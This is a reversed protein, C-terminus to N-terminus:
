RLPWWEVDSSEDLDAAAPGREAKSSDHGQPGQRLAHGQAPKAPTRQKRLMHVSPRTQPEIHSCACAHTTAPVACSLLHPRPARTIWDHAKPVPKHAVAPPVLRPLLLEPLLCPLLHTSPHQSTCAHRGLCRQGRHQAAKTARSAYQNNCHRCCSTASVAGTSVAAPQRLDDLCQFTGALSGLRGQRRQESIHIRLHGPVQLLLQAFGLRKHPAM